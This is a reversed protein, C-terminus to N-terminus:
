SYLFCITEKEVRHLYRTNKMTVRHKSVFNFLSWRWKDDPLFPEMNKGPLDVLKRKKDFTFTQFYRTYTMKFIFTKDGGRLNIKFKSKDKHRVGEIGPLEKQCYECSFFIWHHFLQLVFPKLFNRHNRLCSIFTPYWYLDNSTLLARMMFVLVNASINCSHHRLVALQTVNVFFVM